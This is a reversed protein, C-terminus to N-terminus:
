APGDGDAPVRQEAFRRAFELARRYATDVVAAGFEASARTPDGLAGDDTWLDMPTAQDVLAHPPDTLPDFSRRGVPGGIRERFV